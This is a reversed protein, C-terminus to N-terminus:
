DAMNVAFMLCAAAVQSPKIELYVTERQLLLCLKTAWTRITGYDGSDLGLVRAYRSMFLMPCNYHLSFELLTLINGELIRFQDKTVKQQLFDPLLSVTLDYCPVSSETIKAALVTVTVALLLYPPTQMRKTAIVGLFRDAINVALFCTEDNYSKRHCLLEILNVMEKRHEPSSNLSLEGSFYNGM